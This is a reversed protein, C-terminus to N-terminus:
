HNLLNELENDNIIKIGLKLANNYKSTNEKKNALLFDTKSSVSSTVKGGAKEILEKVKDRSGIQSKGTLCFTKGAAASIQIEKNSIDPQQIDLLAAIADAETYDFSNLAREMEAGFGDINSWQGGVANRFEGWTPYIRSITRAVTKGILPIGLGSIFAELSCHRSESIADLLNQMSRIGFGPRSVLENKFQSLFFIGKLDRLYGWDIFKEITAKSLGKVDLGKKGVFHDIKNVLKGNCNNNNCWLTQVGNNDKIITDGGCVPCKKPITFIENDKDDEFKQAWSIQPIIMNSKYVKIKQGKFPQGLTEKMVSINHLSARNCVTGEIEIDEYIAIPTLLGTRGLTWEINVLESDEEEDYFKFAIGGRFHHSTSGLSKYYEINDYKFVVGDIPINNENAKQKIYKIDEEIYAKSANIRFYVSIFNYDNLAELKRGLETLNDFGKIVDWAIFTLGCDKNENANLRRIAGAAYNRPNKYDTAFKENFTKLDCIIEGDVILEEKYSIAKPVSDLLVINHLIDEGIVGNGRTEASVLKGNIYRLSCTLGDLKEMVIYNHEGVFSFIDDISKTKNLSLMPHNHEVKDLKNKVKYIIKKTPSDPLYEGTREEMEVLKFYLTDWEEDSMPSEGKDYLDTYYNLKDVLARMQQEM